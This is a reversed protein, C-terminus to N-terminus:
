IKTKSSKPLLTYKSISYKDKKIINLSSNFVNDSPLKIRNCLKIKKDIINPTDQKTM